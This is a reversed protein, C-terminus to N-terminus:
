ASLIEVIRDSTIPLRDIVADPKRKRSLKHAEILFPSIQSLRKGDFSAKLAKSAPLAYKKYTYAKRNTEYWELYKEMAKEFLLDEIKPGLDLRGEAAAAKRKAVEEKAVTRSVPGLNETYRQGRYYFDIIWSDGRRYLNPPNKEKKQKM